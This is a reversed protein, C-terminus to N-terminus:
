KKEKEKQANQAITKMPHKDNIVRVKDPTTKITRELKMEWIEKQIAKNRRMEPHNAISDLAQKLLIVASKNRESPKQSLEYGLLEGLSKYNKTERLYEIEPRIEVNQRNRILMKVQEATKPAFEEEDAMVVDRRTLSTELVLKQEPTLKNVEIKMPGPTSRTLTFERSHAFSDPPANPPRAPLYGPLNWIFAKGLKIEIEDPLVSQASEGSIKNKGTKKVTEITPM